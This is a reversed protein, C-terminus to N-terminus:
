LALVLEVKIFKIKFYIITSKETISNGLSKDKKEKHLVIIKNLEANFGMIIFAENKGMKFENYAEICDPDVKM